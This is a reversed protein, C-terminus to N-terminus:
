RRQKCRNNAIDGAVTNDYYIITAPQSYGFDELTQRASELSTANLYLGAYESEYAGACVTEILKCLYGVPGNLTPLPTDVGQFNSTGLTYVGGARSRSMPESDHSADSHAVLIMNSPRYTIIADPHALIYQILRDAALM